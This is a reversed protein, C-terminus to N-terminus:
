DAALIAVLERPGHVGEVRNLEIDSTASPGSIFTLPQAPDLRAVAEPVTAVIASTRIVCVHLDPVLTIARRGQDPAATLIITATEAIACEAGTVAADVADLEDISLVGGSAGQGGGPTGGDVVGGSVWGAPLGPPIVVRRADRQQLVDAIVGPIDAAACQRVTAGYEGLREAFMVVLAFSGPPEGADHRYERPVAPVDPEPGLAHHIRALIEERASM